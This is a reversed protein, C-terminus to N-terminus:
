AYMHTLLTLVSRHLTLWSYQMGCGSPTCWCSYAQGEPLMETEARSGPLKTTDQCAEGSNGNADGAASGDPAASEGAAPTTRREHPLFVQAHLCTRNM